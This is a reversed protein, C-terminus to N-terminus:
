IIKFNKVDYVVDKREVIIRWGRSKAYKALGVSPNFAIPFNVKKLFAIDSETDGIGISTKINLEPHKQLFRELIGRKEFRVGGVINTFVGDIIEHETAFYEDFEYHRVFEAVIHNPSGSVALLFYEKNKLDKILDRTFRYVKGKQEQIVKRAAKKIDDERLGVIVKNYIEVLKNAYNSYTGRRNLWALYDKEVSKLVKGEVKGNRILEHLLEIFLSSRFITGDIDFVALKRKM